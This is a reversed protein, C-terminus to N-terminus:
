RVPMERKKATYEHVNLRLVTVVKVLKEDFAGTFDESTQTRMLCEMAQMKENPDIVFEATARGMLSRYAMGYRCAVDGAFPQVDCEMSFFVRPDARLADLKRGSTACHLYLSLNGNEDMAYGYNMPVVYPGDADTIGVHVVRSKDLIELIEAWDTVERERRTMGRM